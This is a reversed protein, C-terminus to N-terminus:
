NLQKAYTGIPLVVRMPGNSAAATTTTASASPGPLTSAASTPVSATVTTTPTALDVVKDGVTTAEAWGRVSTHLFHLVGHLYSLISKLFNAKIYIM